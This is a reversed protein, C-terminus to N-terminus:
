GIIGIGFLEKELLQGFEPRGDFARDSLDAFGAEPWAASSAGAAILVWGKNKGEGLPALSAAHINGLVQHGQQLASQMVPPLDFSQEIFQPWRQELLMPMLAGAFRFGLVRFVMPQAVAGFAQFLLLLNIAQALLISPEFVAETVLLPGGLLAEKARRGGGGFHRDFGAGWGLLCRAKASGLQPVGPV